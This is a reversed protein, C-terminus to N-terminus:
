RQSSRCTFVKRRIPLRHLTSWQSLEGMTCTNPVPLLKSIMSELRVQRWLDVMPMNFSASHSTSPRSSAKQLDLMQEAYQHIAPRGYRAMQRSRAWRVIALVSGRRTYNAFRRDAKRECRIKRLTGPRIARWRLSNKACSIVRKYRSRKRWSVMRYCRHSGRELQFPQQKEPISQCCVAWCRLKVQVWHHSDRSIMKSRSWWFDRETRSWSAPLRNARAHRRKTTRRCICAVYTIRHLRFPNTAFSAAKTMLCHTNFLLRNLWQVLSGKLYYIGLRYLLL